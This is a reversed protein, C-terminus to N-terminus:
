LDHKKMFNQLVDELDPKGIEQLEYQVRLAPKNLKIVRTLDIPTGIIVLDVPANNISEELEKMQKTGYGM